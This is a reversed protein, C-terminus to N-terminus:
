RSRIFYNVTMASPQVTMSNGYIVNSRSADFIVESWSDAWGTKVGTGNSITEGFYFSGSLPYRWLWIDQHGLSGTINPLGAAFQQVTM